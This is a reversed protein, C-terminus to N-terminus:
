KSLSEEVESIKSTLISIRDEWDKLSEDEKEKLQKLDNLKSKIIDTKKKVEDLIKSVENFDEIKVFIQDQKMMKKV